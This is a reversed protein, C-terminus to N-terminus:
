PKGLTVKVATGAAVKRGARPSQGVVKGNKATAGKRKSVEGPKCGASRIAQKAAKLKKGGLGPVKCRKPPTPEPEPAPPQTAAGGDDVDANFAAEENVLPFASASATSGGAALQPTYSITESGGSVLFGLKATNAENDIGILDGAAIPLSTTFTEVGLGAPTAPASTAVAVYHGLGDPHLVRLRFTGEAAKVRWRVVTGDFPAAAHAGVEAVKTNVFTCPNPSCMIFPSAPDTLPNGVTVTTAEAASPAALAFVALLSCPLFPRSSRM